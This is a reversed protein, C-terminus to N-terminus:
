AIEDFNNFIRFCMQKEFGCINMCLSFLKGYPQQNFQVTTETCLMTITVINGYKANELLCKIEFTM